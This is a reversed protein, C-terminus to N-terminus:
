VASSQSSPIIVLKIQQESPDKLEAVFVECGSPAGALIVVM